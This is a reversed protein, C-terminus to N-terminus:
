GRPHTAQPSCQHFARTPDRAGWGHHRGASQPPAKTQNSGRGSVDGELVILRVIERSANIVPVCGLNGQLMDIRVQETGFGEEVVYPTRNCVHSVQAKLDGDSLIWRRIDGDTLSGILRSEGDVVFVIKEETKELREMAQRISHTEPVLFPEVNDNM